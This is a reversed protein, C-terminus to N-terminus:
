KPFSLSGFRIGLDIRPPLSSCIPSAGIGYSVASARGCCRGERAVALLACGRALELAECPDAGRDCDVARVDCAGVRLEAEGRAAAVVRVACGAVRALWDGAGRTARLEGGTLM